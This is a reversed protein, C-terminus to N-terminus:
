FLIVVISYITMAMLGLQGKKDNPYLQKQMAEMSTLFSWSNVLLKFFQFYVFNILEHFLQYNVM